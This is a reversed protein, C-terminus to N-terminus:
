ENPRAQAAHIRSFLDDMFRRIRSRSAIARFHRWEGDREVMIHTERCIMLWTAMGVGVLLLAWGFTRFFLMEAVLLLLVGPGSLLVLCLLIRVIPMTRYTVIASIRDYFTRRLRDSFYDEEAHVLCDETTVLSSRKILSKSSLKM